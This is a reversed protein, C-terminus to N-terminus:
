FWHLVSRAIEANSVVVMFLIFPTILRDASCTASFTFFMQPPRAAKLRIQADYALHSSRRRSCLRRAPLFSSQM